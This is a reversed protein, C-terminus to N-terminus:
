DCVSLIVKMAYENFSAAIPIVQIQRPSVWLPRSAPTFILKYRHLTYWKGGYHEALIAIFREVSGFIARHIIVPRQYDKSPDERNQEKSEYCKSGGFASFFIQSERETSLILGSQFSSTLSFRQV